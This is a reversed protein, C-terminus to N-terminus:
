PQGKVGKKGIRGKAALRLFPGGSPIPRLYVSIPRQDKWTDGTQEEGTKM